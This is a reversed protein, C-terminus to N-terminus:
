QMNAQLFVEIRRYLEIRNKEMVFDGFDNFRTFLECPTGQAKLAEALRTSQNSPLGPTDKAHALFVPVKIRAAQYLPSIERMAEPDKEPDGIRDTDFPVMEPHLDGEDKIIGKWDSIGSLSLGCRYLDPTRILGMLAAYGGFYSGMIAVRRPDTIGAKIAWRVTDEVDDPMTDGVHRFGAELFARGYGRSGRTNVQLVAYGRNALFQVMPDYTWGVRSWLGSATLMVTPLDKREKGVPITLYGHLLLGDRSRIKFPLTEAMQDVPVRTNTDVLKTLANKDRDFLYYAGPNRDSRSYIVLKRQDETMNVVQNVAKPIAQDWRQQLGGLEADFWVTHTMESEFQLGLVDHTPSYMVGSVDAWPHQFVTEVVKDQDPDYFQLGYIGNADPLSVLLLRSNQGFGWVTCDEVEDGLGKLWQWPAAKAAARYLVDVHGDRFRIGLRIRGAGDAKWSGIDGPNEVVRSFSGTRSGLKLVNPAFLGAYLGKAWGPENYEEVLIYGRDKDQQSFTHVRRSAIIYDNHQMTARFYNGSGTLMEYDSGDANVGIYGAGTAVVFRDPKVWIIDWFHEYGQEPSEIRAGKGTGLNLVYLQENDDKHTVYAVRTGDPSLRMDYLDNYRAFVEVPILPVARVVSGLVIFVLLCWSSRPFM